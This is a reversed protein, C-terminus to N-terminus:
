SAAERRGCALTSLWVSPVALWTRWMPGYASSAGGDCCEMAEDGLKAALQGALAM